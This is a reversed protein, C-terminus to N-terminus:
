GTVRYLREAINLRRIALRASGGAQVRLAQGRCGFGDRPFEYGHSAVHFYLPPGDLLGPEDVAAVGNSDTVYRIGNVTRLEVLPVGRGTAGDVVEITFYGKAAADSQPTAGLLGILIPVIM